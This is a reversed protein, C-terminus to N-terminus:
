LFPQKGKGRYGGFLFAVFQRAAAVRNRVNEDALGEQKLKEEFGKLSDKLFMKLAQDLLSINEM